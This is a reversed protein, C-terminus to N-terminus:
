TSSLSQDCVLDNDNLGAYLQQELLAIEQRLVETKRSSGTISELEQLAEQRSIIDRLASSHDLARDLECLLRTTDEAFTVNSNAFDVFDFVSDKTM